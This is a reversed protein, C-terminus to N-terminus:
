TRFMSSIDNYFESTNYITIPALILVNDRYYFYLNYLQEGRDNAYREIVDRMVDHLVRSLSGLFFFVIPINYVRLERCGSTLRKVEDQNYPKLLDHASFIHRESDVSITIKTVDDPFLDLLELIVRDKDRNMADSIYEGNFDGLITADYLYRAFVYYLNLLSYIDDEDEENYAIMKNYRINELGPNVAIGERLDEVDVELDTIQEPVLISGVLDTNYDEGQLIMNEKLQPYKSRDYKMDTITLVDNEDDEDKELTVGYLTDETNPKLSLCALFSRMMSPSISPHEFSIYNVWNELDLLTVDEHYRDNIVFKVNDHFWSNLDLNSVDDRSEYLEILKPDTFFVNNVIQPRLNTYKSMTTPKFEVCTKFKYKKDLPSTYHSCMFVHLCDEQVTETRM